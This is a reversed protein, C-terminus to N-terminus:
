GSAAEFALCSAMELAASSSLGSGIPVTGMIVINMGRLDHDTDILAQAVGRIYNTWPAESYKDIENLSFSFPQNYTLSFARVQRDNRASGAMMVNYEIAAPFVFGDNYDTHEGILNVRGPACIIFEPVQFYLETFRKRLPEIESMHIEAWSRNLDM